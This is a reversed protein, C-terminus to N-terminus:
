SRLTRTRRRGWTRWDWLPFPARKKQTVSLRWRTWTTGSVRGDLRVAHVDPLDTGNYACLCQQYRAVLAVAAAAVVALVVSVRLDRLKCRLVLGNTTSRWLRPLHRHQQHRHRRRQRQRQRRRQFVPITTRRPATSCEKSSGLAACWGQHRRGCARCHCTGPVAYPACANLVIIVVRGLLM